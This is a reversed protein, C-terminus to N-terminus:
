EFTGGGGDGKTQSVPPEIDNEEVQTPVGSVPGSPSAEPTGSAETSAEPTNEPTSEPTNEPTSEPTGSPVEEQTPAASPVLSDAQDPEDGSVSEAPTDEPEKQGEPEELVQSEAPNPSIVYPLLVDQGAGWIGWSPENEIATILTEMNGLERLWNRLVLGGATQSTNVTRVWQMRRSSHRVPERNEEPVAKVTVSGTLYYQNNYEDTLDPLVLRFYTHGNEIRMQVKFDLNFSFENGNGDRSSYTRYSKGWIGNQYVYGNVYDYVHWGASPQTDQELTINGDSIVAEYLGPVRPDPRFSFDAYGYGINKTRENWLPVRVRYSKEEKVISLQYNGGIPVAGGAQATKGLEDMYSLDAADIDYRAAEESAEWELVERYVTLKEDTMQDSKETYAVEEEYNNTGLQPTDLGVQPLVYEAYGSWPSTKTGVTKRIRFIVHKEGYDALYGTQYVGGSLNNGTMKVTQVATQSCLSGADPTGDKSLGSNYLGIQLEYSGETQEKSTMHYNFVLSEFESATYPPEAQKPLSDTQMDLTLDEIAPVELPSEGEGPEEPEKPDDPIEPDTPEETDPDPMVVWDEPFHYVQEDGYLYPDVRLSLEYGSISTGHPNTEMGIARRMLDKDTQYRGEYTGSSDDQCIVLPQGLGYRTEGSPVSSGGSNQAPSYAWVEWVGVSSGVDTNKYKMDDQGDMKIDLYVYGRDPLDKPLRITTVTHGDPSSVEVTENGLIIESSGTSLNHYVVDYQYTRNTGMWDVKISRLTQWGHTMGSLLFQIKLSDGNTYVPTDAANPYILHDQLPLVGMSPFPASYYAQFLHVSLEEMPEDEEAKPVFYYNKAEAAAGGSVVNSEGEKYRTIPYKMDSVGYCSVIKAQGSNVLGSKGGLIGSLEADKYNKEDVDSPRGYNRCYEFYTSGSDNYGLIGAHPKGNSDSTLNSINICNEFIAEAQGFGDDSGAYVGAIGGVITSAGTQIETRNRLKKLVCQRDGDLQGVLGGAIVGDTSATSISWDESTRCNIVRADKIYGNEDMIETRSGTVRGALGGAVTGAGSAQLVVTENMGNENVNELAGTLHGVVGGLCVTGSSQIRINLKGSSNLSDSLRGELRGFLGGVNGNVAQITISSNKNDNYLERYSGKGYGVLGGVSSTDNNRTGTGSLKGTFRCFELTGEDNGVIGGFFQYAGENQNLLSAAVTCRKISASKQSSGAIGGLFEARIMNDTATDNDVIVGQIEGENIGCVYGAYKARYSSISVDKMTISKITGENTEFLGIADAEEQIIGGSMNASFAFSDLVMKRGDLVSGKKLSQIAPFVPQQTGGMGKYVLHHGAIGEDGSWKLVLNEKSGDEATQEAPRYTNSGNGSGELFRINFLHRPNEIRYEQKTGDSDYAMMPEEQEQTINSNQAGTQINEGFVTVKAKGIKKQLDLGLRRISYTNDYSFAQDGHTQTVTYAADLDVADMVMHIEKDKKYIRFTLEKDAGNVNAKCKIQNGSNGWLVSASGLNKGDFSLVCDPVEQGADQFIEIQYDYESVDKKSQLNWVLELTEGNEWWVKKVSVKESTDVAAGDQESDYYGLIYQQRLADWNERGGVGFGASTHVSALLEDTFTDTRDSYCVAYVAGTEPNFEVRISAQFINEDYVYDKLLQYLRNDERSSENRELLLYRLQDPNKVGAATVRNSDVEEALEELQGGAKYYSLASQSAAFITKAYENNQKYMSLHRYKVIAGVGAALLIALIVCTVIVEVLTFGKQYKQKKEYLIEM